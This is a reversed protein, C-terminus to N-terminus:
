ISHEIFSKLMDKFNSFKNIKTWSPNDLEFYVDLKIDYVYWSNNNEGLFIYRKQHENEYFITNFEILGNIHNNTKISLLDKDIGYIIFGNFEIGNLNKLFDLYDNPLIVSFFKKWFYRFIIEFRKGICM